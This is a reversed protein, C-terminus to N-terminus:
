LDEDTKPDAEHSPKGQHDRDVKSKDSDRHHDRDETLTGGMAAALRLLLAARDTTLSKGTQAAVEHMYAGLEEAKDKQNGEAAAKKAERLKVILSNAVGPKSVFQRTLSALSDMTVQLTFSTSAAGTNGAVDTASASFTNGGLNFTYAPGSITRCTSSAVGSLADTAACTINVMQDVTYTGANGSFAVTPPTWDIQVRLTRPVEANNALDTAWYSITTAGEANILFSAQAGALTTSPMSQAGSARFTIQKVLAPNGNEASSLTVTVPQNNWGAANPAPSLTATTSPPDTPIPAIKVVLGTSDCYHTAKPDVIFYLFDGQQVSVQALAAGNVGTAFDQQGGSVISGSALTTSGRDVSWLIGDGCGARLSSVGGSISVPGSTPSRWGVIVLLTPGPHVNIVGPPWAMGYPTQLAGTANLRVSPLKDNVSTSILTGQWGPLGPIFFSDPVFEPLLSYTAPDHTLTGSQLFYWVSSNGCRDPNPNAQNPTDRFDAALDWGPCLPQAHAPRLGATVLLLSALLVASTVGRLKGM